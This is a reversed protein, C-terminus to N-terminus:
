SFRKNHRLHRRNFRRSLDDVHKTEEADAYFNHNYQSRLWYNQLRKNRLM